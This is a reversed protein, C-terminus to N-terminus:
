IGQVSNLAIGKEVDKLTMNTRGSSRTVLFCVSLLRICNSISGEGNNAIIAPIEKVFDVGSLRLRQEVIMEMQRTDYEQLYCHYEISKNIDKSLKKIDSVGFVFLKNKASVTIEEGAVYYKFKISGHVIFKHLLTKSFASLEDAESIYYVTEEEINKYLSGSCGGMSLHRGHVLEFNNCLSNSLARAILQKGEKGAIVISSLKYNNNEYRDISIKETIYKLLAIARDQFLINYISAQEDFSSIDTIQKQKEKKM